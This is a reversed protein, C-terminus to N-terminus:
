DSGRRGMRGEGVFFLEPFHAFRMFKEFDTPRWVQGFLNGQLRNSSIFAQQVCGDDEAVDEDNGLRHTHFDEHSGARGEGLREIGWSIDLLELLLHIDVFLKSVDKSGDGLGPV